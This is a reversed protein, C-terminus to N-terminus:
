KTILVTFIRMHNHHRFEAVGKKWTEIVQIHFSIRDKYHRCVQSKVLDVGVVVVM